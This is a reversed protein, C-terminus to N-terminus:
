MSFRNALTLVKEKLSSSLSSGKLASAIISGLEDMDEEKMGRTTLSPTGLRLGSTISPPKNDYPIKNKNAIIGIEQLREEADKGTINLATLDILLLHTDTGGSVLRLNEKVLSEGLLIANKVVQRQYGVFDETMAEKFCIAKGAIENMLPGGQLGPFVWSDVSKKFIERCLIIGGRPGRLTKHTTSTIIDAYPAPSPHVSAAILGAIHAMDVMLYAGCNKAIQQFRAFDIIRSYASAGAIIVKPRHQQALNHLAEYDILEDDRKVGYPIINFWRGSFNVPSGHTLHGGHELNMALISDGMEAMSFLAAMNANSGSHPQVNAHEVQFVKKAREIALSEIEDSIECGGYYRRKPYGEAYKNTLISGVAMMVQNSTINESAILSLTQRQREKEREILAFIERDPELM